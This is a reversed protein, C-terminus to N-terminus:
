EATICFGVRRMGPSLLSFAPMLVPLVTRLYDCHRFGPFFVFVVFFWCAFGGVFGVFLLRCQSPGALYFFPSPKHMVTSQCYPTFIIGFIWGLFVDGYQFIHHFWYLELRFGPSGWGSAGLDGLTLRMARREYDEESSTSSGQRTRPLLLLAKPKESKVAWQSPVFTCSKLKRIKAVVLQTKVEQIRWLNSVRAGLYWRRLLSHDTPWNPCM